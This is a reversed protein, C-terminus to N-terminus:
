SILESPLDLAYHFKARLVFKVPYPLNNLLQETRRPSLGARLQENVQEVIIEAEEYCMVRGWTKRFKPEIYLVDTQVHKM